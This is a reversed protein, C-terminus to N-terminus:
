RKAESIPRGAPHGEALTDGLREQTTGSSSSLKTDEHPNDTRVVSHRHAREAHAESLPHRSGPRGGALSTDETPQARHVHPPPAGFPPRPAFLERCVEPLHRQLLQHAEESMAEGLVRCVVQAHERAFGTGVGERRGVREYFDALDFVGGHPERRLIALLPAPLNGTMARLEDDWLREGLAGLSAEILRDLDEKREIGTLFAVRDLFSAYDM